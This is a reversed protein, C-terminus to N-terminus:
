KKRESEKYKIFATLNFLAEDARIRLDKYKRKDISKTMSKVAPVIAKLAPLFDGEIFVPEDYDFDADAYIDYMANLAEVASDPSTIGKPPLEQLVGLLFQGIVKNTDVAGQKRAIVGLAGISKVRMTDSITSTYSGRLAPVHFPALPVDSELGRALAWLCGVIAELVAGRMEQGNEEEGVRVGSGAVQGATTFLWTWTNMADEKRERFWWKTPVECMTLFFNNLCELARLHARALHETIAPAATSPTPLNQPPFSLPTPTAIRILAPFVTYTMLHLIPNSRLQTDDVSGLTAADNLMSADALLAAADDDAISDKDSTHEPIGDEDLMTEDGDEWGDDEGTDEICINSLLELSLHLIELRKEIERLMQEEPTLLQKPLGTIEKTEIHLYAESTAVRVAEEAAKQLDYDLSSALIPMVLKNVEAVPDVTEDWSTSRITERINMLIACALIRVLLRDEGTNISIVNMLQQTYEPHSQFQFYIEKNDDTLTNLCQGATVVVKVPAKDAASLFSVLFPILNLKNVAKLVKDSTESMSWIISIVNDAFDWVTKRMEADKKDVEPTGNLIRNIVASIQPILVMLPTLVDKQYIEICIDQDISTLNRLAGAAELVVDQRPDTLREVLQGVLNKSLLLKRTAADAM